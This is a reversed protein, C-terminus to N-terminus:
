KTEKYTLANFLRQFSDADLLPWILSNADLGWALWPAPDRLKTQRKQDERFDLYRCGLPLGLQDADAKRAVRMHAVADMQSILDERDGRPVEPVIRSAIGEVDRIGEQATILVARGSSAVDRLARLVKLQSFKRQGYDRLEPFDRNGMASRLATIALETLTDVCIMGAGPDNLAGQALEMADRIGGAESLDFAKSDKCGARRLAASSGRETDGIVAFRGETECALALQAMLSSKGIGSKGYVLLMQGLNQPENYTITKLAM